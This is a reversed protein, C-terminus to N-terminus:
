LRFHLRVTGTAGTSLSAHPNYLGVRVEGSSCLGAILVLPTNVLEQQEISCMVRVGSQARANIFKLEVTDLPGVDVGTWTGVAEAAPANLTAPYAAIGANYVNNRFGAGEETMVMDGNNNDIYWGGQKDGNTFSWRETASDMYLGRNQINGMCIAPNEETGFTKCLLTDPQCRNRNQDDRSFFSAM